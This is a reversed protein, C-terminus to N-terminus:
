TNSVYGLVAVFAWSVGIGIRDSGILEGGEEADVGEGGGGVGWGRLVAGGGRYGWVRVPEELDERRPGEEAGHGAGDRHPPAVRQGLLPRPRHGQPWRAELLGLSPVGDVRQGRQQHRRLVPRHRQVVVPRRLRPVHAPRVQPRRPRQPAPQDVRAHPVRRAQVRGQHELEALQLAPVAVRVAAGRVALGGRQRAGAAAGGVHGRAVRVAVGRRDLGDAPAPRGGRRRGVHQARLHAEAPHLHGRLAPHQGRGPLGHDPQRRLVAGGHRRRRVRRRLRDRRAPQDAQARAAPQTHADDARRVQAGDAHQLRQGVRQM